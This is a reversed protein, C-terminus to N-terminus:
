TSLYYVSIYIKNCPANFLRVKNVYITYMSMVFCEASSRLMREEGDMIVSVELAEM